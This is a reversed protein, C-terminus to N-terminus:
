HDKKSRTVVKPSSTINTYFDGLEKPVPKTNEKEMDARAHAEAKEVTRTKEEELTRELAPNVYLLTEGTGSDVVRLSKGQIFVDLSKMAEIHPFLRHGIVNGTEDKLEEKPTAPDKIAARVFNELNRETTSEETASIFRKLKEINEM